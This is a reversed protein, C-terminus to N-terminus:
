TVDLDPPTEGGSAAPNAGSTKLAHRVMYSPDEALLERVKEQAPTGAGLHAALARRVETSEDRALRLGIPEPKGRAGWLQAALSRLAPGRGSLFAVDDTLAHTIKMLARVLWTEGADVEGLLTLAASRVAAQEEDTTALKAALYVAQPRSDAAIASGFGSSLSEMALDPQSNSPSQACEMAANCHRRRISEPLEDALNAAALLYDARDLFSVWADNSKAILSGTARDLEDASLGRILLSDSIARNGHTYAGPTHPVPTLIRTLANQAAESDILQPDHFALVEKAWSNASSQLLFPRADDYFAEIVDQTTSTRATEDSVLLPILRQLCRMRLPEHTRAIRAIAQAEAKTHGRYRGEQIPPQEEYTSLVSLATAYELRDALGALLETAARFRSDALFPLDVLRGAMAESVDHAAQGAIASVLEDPILDAQEALLRYASAVTWYSPSELAAVINIFRKPWRSALEKLRKSGGARSLYAAALEPEDDQLAIGLVRCADMEAGWDGAVVADSLSRQAAIAASRHNGDLVHARAASLAASDSPVIDPSPGMGTLAVEIPLLDNGTLPKWRTRFVRRSFVWASAASWRQALCAEGIAEAWTEDAEEFQQNLALHRAYRASVLACLAHDIKHRRALSLVDSWDGKAEAILLKLRVQWTDQGPLTWHNPGTDLCQELQRLASTLWGRNDAALATEGAVVLLRLHDVPELDSLASISPARGFPESYLDLLVEAAKTVAAIREVQPGDGPLDKTIAALRHYVPMAATTRGHECAAWIDEMLTRAADAARGLKVLLPARDAELASAHASFGKDRLIAQAREVKSLAAEPNDEGGAEDLLKQAGTTVEPTRAVAEQVAVADRNPIMKPTADFPLCFRQATEEGFFEIVIEPESRLMQSIQKKDWLELDVPQLEHIYEMLKDMVSTSRVDSSVGIIFRQVAFPRETSRFKEVAETLDSPHFDKYDKSQLAVGSRDAGLGILDLGLQAQGRTGYFQINRLGEVDYLMRYQLREFGEWGLDDIPLYDLKGMTLAPVPTTVSKALSSDLGVPKWGSMDNGGVGQGVEASM